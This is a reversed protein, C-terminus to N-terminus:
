GKRRKKVATRIVGRLNQVELDLTKLSISKLFSFSIKAEIRRLCSSILDKIRGRVLDTLGSKCCMCGAVQMSVYCYSFWYICNWLFLLQVIFILNNWPFFQPQCCLFANCTRSLWPLLALCNFYFYCPIFVTQLTKKNNTSEFSLFYKKFSKKCFSIKEFLDFHIRTVLHIRVVEPSLLKLCFIAKRTYSTM